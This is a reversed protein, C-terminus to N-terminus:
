KLITKMSSIEKKINQLIEVFTDKGSRPYGNIIVIKLSM